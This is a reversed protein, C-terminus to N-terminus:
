AGDGDVILWDLIAFEAPSLELNGDIEDVNFPSGWVDVEVSLLENWKRNFEELNAQPIDWNKEDGNVPTGYDKLLAMHADVFEKFESQASRYVKGLRYAVRANKIREDKLRNLLQISDNLQALTIKM